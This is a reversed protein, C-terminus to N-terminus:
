RQPAEQAPNRKQRRIWAPVLGILLAGLTIGGAVQMLRVAVPGYRGSTADYHFCFLLLQDLTTGIKGEGTEQLSLRLTTPDYQVGYLYRSIRGDPTCLILVATHVYENREPLYKYRFGVCDALREIAKQKGTLFQWGAAGNARGYAKVYRQRTLRAREPTESPNISVSVVQFDEGAQLKIERLSDVLGNLQVQCLMPCDSYNLTLIVPREGTFFSALRVPGIEIM